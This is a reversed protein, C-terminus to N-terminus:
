SVPHVCVNTSPGWPSSRQNATFRSSCFPSFIQALDSASAFAMALSFSASRNSRAGRCHTSTLIPSTFRCYRSWDM